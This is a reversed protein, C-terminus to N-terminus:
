KANGGGGGGSKSHINHITSLITMKTLLYEFWYAKRNVM